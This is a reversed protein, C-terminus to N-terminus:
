HAGAFLMPKFNFNRVREANHCRECEAMALKSKIFSPDGGSDVHASGPGHCVECGANALEPTKEFSVFGGPRGYGTTHCAFCGRLEEATLKKAMIKVSQSSHAKKSYRSYSDYEKAHCEQCAKSGVYSAPKAPEPPAQENQQAFAPIPLPAFFLVATLLAAYLSRRRVSM